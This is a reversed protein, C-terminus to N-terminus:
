VSNSKAEKLKKELKEIKHFALNRESSVSELKEELKEIESISRAEM